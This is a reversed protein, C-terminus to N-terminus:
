LIPLDPAACRRPPHFARAHLRLKRNETSWDSSIPLVNSLEITNAPKVRANSNRVYRERVSESDGPRPRSGRSAYWLTRILPQELGSADVDETGSRTPKFGRLDRVLGERLPPLTRVVALSFEMAKAILPADAHFGGFCEQTTLQFQAKGRYIAGTPLLVLTEMLHMGGRKERKSDDPAPRSCSALTDVFSLRATQGSGDVDKADSNTQKFTQCVKCLAGGELRAGPSCM